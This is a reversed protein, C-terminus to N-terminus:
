KKEKRVFLTPRWPYRLFISGFSIAQAGLDRVKQIDDFEWISPGIVPVATLTALKKVLDWTTLQAAKGSVGGGGFHMLPSKQNPFLIEWPVSNIAYSEVENRTEKVITEIDHSVSVKLLIPLSSAQKVAQCSAIIKENNHLIDTQTNPCSANIEIGVIDFCELMKVMEVLEAPEGFLSVVLPIKASNVSPGITKCWWDIGPNSLGVANVVGGHILRICRLPNYCRLNGKKPYFTLTKSVSTFLEPELFDLWDLPREWPWGKGDYGLAGSATMYEFTHGNSFTIM